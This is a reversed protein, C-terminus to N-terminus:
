SHTEEDEESSDDIGLYEAVIQEVRKRVLILAQDFGNVGEPSLYDPAKLKGVLLDGLVRAAVAHEFSLSSATVSLEQGDELTFEQARVMSSTALVADVPDVETRQFLEVLDQLEKSTPEWESSGATLHIIKRSM